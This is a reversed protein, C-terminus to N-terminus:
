VSDCLTYYVSFRLIRSEIFESVLVASFRCILQALKMQALRGVVSMMCTRNEPITNSCIEYLVIGVNFSNTDSLFFSVLLITPKQIAQM